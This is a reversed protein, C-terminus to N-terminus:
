RPAAFSTSSGWEDPAFHACGGSASGRLQLHRIDASSAARRALALATQSPRILSAPEQSIVCTTMDLM